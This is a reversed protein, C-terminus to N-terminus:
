GGKSRRAEEVLRLAEKRADDVVNLAHRKAEAILGLAEAKAKESVDALCPKNEMKDILIRQRENNITIAETQKTISPVLHRQQYVAVGLATLSIVTALASTGLNELDKPNLFALVPAAGGFMFATMTAVKIGTM